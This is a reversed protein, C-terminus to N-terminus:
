LLGSAPNTPGRAPHARTGAAGPRTSDGPATAARREHAVRRKRLPLPVGPRYVGPDRDAGSERELFLPFDEAPPKAHEFPQAYDRMLIRRERTLGALWDPDCRLRDGAVIWSPCYAIYLTKRTQSGLNEATRHWLSAHMITISGARLELQQEGPTPEHTTYQDLYPQRHSGPVVVLNAANADGVETLWWGVKIQLPLTPSFVSLPVARAGDVHWETCKSGPPRQFLQTSQVKLLEGFLDYAFGVHLPHDILEALVPDRAVVHEVCLYRDPVFRPSSRACRDCAELFREVLPTSLAGELVLYGDALFREWQGTTFGPPAPRSGATLAARGTRPLRM